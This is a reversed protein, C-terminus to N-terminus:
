RVTIPSFRPILAPANPASGDSQSSIHWDSDVRRLHVTVRRDPHEEIYSAVGSPGSLTEVAPDTAVAAIVRQEAALDAVEVEISGPFPNDPLDELVETDGGRQVARVLDLAEQSTLHRAGEGGRVARVARLVRQADRDNATRRLIIHLDVDDYPDVDFQREVVARARDGTVSVGDVQMQGTGPWDKVWYGSQDDIWAACTRAVDDSGGLGDSRAVNRRHGRTMRGCAADARGAAVDAEYAVVARRVDRQEDGPTPGCAGSILVIAFLALVIRLM